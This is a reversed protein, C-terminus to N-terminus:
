FFNVVLAAETITDLTEAFPVFDMAFKAGKPAPLPAPAHDYKLAYSFAFSVNKWLTTSLGAKANIRTDDFADVGQASMDNGIPRLAKEETNLNFLVEFNAFVATSGTLKSTHGLFIRASHIIVADPAASLKEYMLDYGIEAISEHKDDKYLQRSYGIQGGADLDKGAVEDGAFNASIYASNHETFFRDYRAKAFWQNATTSDLRQLEQRNDITGNMNLDNLVYISSQAYALGADFSFKNEKEKRSLSTGATFTTNQSNGTTLVLGAKAQAKWEVEKVEEQKGFQFKPDQAWARGGLLSALAVLWTIRRVTM